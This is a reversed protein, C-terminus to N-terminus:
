KSQSLEQDSILINKVKHLMLPAEAVIEIWNWLIITGGGRSGNYNIVKCYWWSNWIRGKGIPVFKISTKRRTPKKWDYNLTQVELSIVKYNKWQKYFPFNCMLLPISVFCKTSFSGHYELCHFKSKNKKTLYTSKEM